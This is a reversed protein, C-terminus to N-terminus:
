QMGRIDKVRCTTGRFALTWYEGENRFCHEPQPQTAAPTHRDARALTAVLIPSLTKRGASPGQTLHRGQPEDTRGGLATLWAKADQLDETDFGETFWAYVEELVHRAEAIKGQHQWLRALSTAARLELAKAQQRRAIDIAKSFCAEAESQT